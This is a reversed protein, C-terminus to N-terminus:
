RKTVAAEPGRRAAAEVPAQREGVCRGVNVAVDDAVVFADARHPGRNHGTAEEGHIPLPEHVKALVVGLDEVVTGLM